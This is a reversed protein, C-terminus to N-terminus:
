RADRRRQILLMVGAAFAIILVTVWPVWAPSSPRAAVPADDVVVPLGRAVPSPPLPAPTALAATPILSAESVVPGGEERTIMTAPDPLVLGDREVRLDLSPADGAQGLDLRVGRADDGLQFLAPGGRPQGEVVVRVVAPLGIFAAAGEASTVQRALEQGGESRVIVVIGPVPHGDVAHLTVRLTYAQALALAPLLVYAALLLGALIWLALTTVLRYQTSM